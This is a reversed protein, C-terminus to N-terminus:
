ASRAQQRAPRWTHHVVELFDVFHSFQRLWIYWLCLMFDALIRVKEAMKAFIKTPWLQVRWDGGLTPDGTHHLVVGLGARRSVDVPAQIACQYGSRDPNVGNGAPLDEFTFFSAPFVAV